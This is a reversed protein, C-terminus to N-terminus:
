LKRGAYKLSTVASRVENVILRPTDERHFFNKTLGVALGNRPDAFGFSGGYGGHGFASADGYFSEGGGIAYGLGWSKPYDDNCAHEPKQMATAIRVREPPLLRVGDVGGPLLAAYHRAIALASMIGNTAPISARRMDPRNMVAHLPGLLPPVPRPTGDDLPPPEIPYEDLSAVRSEVEDPIGVYMAEIDLPRCIEDAVLQSLSRGDVRRAVEGLIWGYTMAHYEMRTGPAWSPALNAIKACMVEWDCVEKFGVGAPMDPIGASHNLAQRLTIREKGNAGFEPWVKSIPDEYSVQAREALLHMITAVMGKTTSFVPFLTGEDVPHEPGGGAMGAWNNVRLEGDVYAAVQLGHERGESVLSDLLTQIQQWM